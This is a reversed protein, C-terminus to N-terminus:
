LASMITGFLPFTSARPWWHKRSELITFGYVSVYIYRKAGQYLTVIRDLPADNPAYLVEVNASAVAQAELLVAPLLLVAAMSMGALIHTFAHAATRIM